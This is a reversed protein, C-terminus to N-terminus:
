PAEWPHPPVWFEPMSRWLRGDLTAGGHAAPDLELHWPTPNNSRRGWQKLFFHTRRAVCRNRIMRVWEPDCPRKEDGSGGGVIILRLGRVDLRPLPGLLPELSGFRNPTPVRRLRDLRWLYDANEVSVGIWINPAWRLFPAMTALRDARKTLLQYTIWPTAVMVDFMEFIFEDPVEPHFTDSMSNVFVVTGPKWSFPQALLEPHLIVEGTWVLRNGSQRTLISPYKLVHGLRCQHASEKRAYCGRCGTSEDSCGTVNSWTIGTWQIASVPAIIGGAGKFKSNRPPGLGPAIADFFASRLRVPRKCGAGIVKLGRARAAIETAAMRHSKAPRCEDPHLAHATGPRRNPYATLTRM